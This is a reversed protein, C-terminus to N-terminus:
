AVARVMNGAPVFSATAIAKDGVAGTIPPYSTLLMTGTFSPNTATGTGSNNVAQLVVVTTTGVLDFLTDDVKGSAFDQSFEIDVGYNKLGGQMIRTTDGMNASDVGEAEFTFSLSRVHDSLDVANISVYADTLVFTAM